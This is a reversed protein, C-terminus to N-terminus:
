REFATNEASGMQWFYNTKERRNCCEVCIFTFIRYSRKSFLFRNNDIWSIGRGVGPGGIWAEDHQRDLLTLNGTAVELKLIWFDKNDQSDATVIAVTGNENWIPSSVNVRRDENKKTLEELQKPYDKLYGPLDKIGPIQSTHITYVSDKTVDYIFNESLILTEGVKTRGAIDETYGSSTIYNPVITSHNTTVPTTLRYSVYKGDPSVVNGSLFKDELYVPRISRQSADATGGFRRGPGGFGQRPGQKNRKKIIDFLYTQEARLWTDQATPTTREQVGAGNAGPVPRKGRIFNTLQKLENTQLNLQFLNDARMFVVDNNYLFYAGSERDVTNTLRSQTKNKFNYFYIDGSKESVALTRDKNYTYNIGVAKEVATEETAEIKYSLVGVKYPQDKEKNEPNWNFFVTKSDESWRYNTPSVGMWKPDRMIKQVTLQGLQQAKAVSAFLLFILTLKKMNHKKAGQEKFEQKIPKVPWDM